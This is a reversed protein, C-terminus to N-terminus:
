GQPGDAPPEPYNKYFVLFGIGLSLPIVGGLLTYSLGALLAFLISLVSGICVLLTGILFSFLRLNLRKPAVGTKIQLSKERHRWLLYFFVVTGGIVIGVIPIVSIIV